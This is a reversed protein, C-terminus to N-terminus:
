YMKQISLISFNDNYTDKLKDWVISCYENSVITGNDLQITVIYSRPKKGLMSAWLLLKNM